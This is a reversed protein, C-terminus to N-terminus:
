DGLVLDVAGHHALALAAKAFAAPEVDATAVMVVTVAMVAAVPSSPNVRNIKCTPRFYVLTAM